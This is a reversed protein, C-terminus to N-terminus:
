RMAILPAGVKLHIFFECTVERDASMLWLLHNKAMFFAHRRLNDHFLRGDLSM